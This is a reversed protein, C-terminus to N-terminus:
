IEKFDGRNGIMYTKGSSHRIISGPKDTIIIEINREDRYRKVVKYILEPVMKNKIDPMGKVIKAAIAWYPMNVVKRPAGKESM